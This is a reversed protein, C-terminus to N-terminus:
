LGTGQSGELPLIQTSLTEMPSVSAISGIHNFEDKLRTNGIRLNNVVLCIESSITLGGYNYCKEKVM